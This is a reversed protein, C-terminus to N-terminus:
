CARCHRGGPERMRQRQQGGADENGGRGTVDERGTLVGSVFIRCGSALDHHCARIVPHVRRVDTGKLGHDRDRLTQGVGPRNNKQDEQDAASEGDDVLGTCQSLCDLPQDPPQLTSFRQDNRDDGEREGDASRELVHRLLDNRENGHEQEHRAPKSEVGDGRDCDAEARGTDARREARDVRELHLDRLLKGSQRQQGTGRESDHQHGKGQRCPDDRRPAM